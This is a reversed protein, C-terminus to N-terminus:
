GSGHPSATHTRRSRRWTSRRMTYEYDGGRCTSSSRRPVASPRQPRREVARRACATATASTTTDGQRDRSAYYIETTSPLSCHLANMLDIRRRSNGLLPPAPPPHRPQNARNPRARVRPVQLSAGRPSLSSRSSTMTRPLAGMPLRGPDAPNQALIDELAPPGRACPWSSRPMLPFSVGHASTAV